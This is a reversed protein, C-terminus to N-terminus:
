NVLASYSGPGINVASTGVGTEVYLTVVDAGTVANQLVGDLMMM